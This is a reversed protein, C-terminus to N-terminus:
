PQATRANAKSLLWSIILFLLLSIIGLFSTTKLKTFTILSGVINEPYGWTTGLFFTSYTSFITVFSFLCLFFFLIWKQLKGIKGKRILFGSGLSGFVLTFVNFALLSNVEDPSVYHESFVIKKSPSLGHCHAQFAVDSYGRLFQFSARGNEDVPLEYTKVWGDSLLTVVVTSNLAPRFTLTNRSPTRDVIYVNIAWSEGVPPYGPPSIQMTLYPVVQVIIGRSTIRVRAGRRFSSIIIGAIIGVLVCM